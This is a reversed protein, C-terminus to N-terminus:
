KLIIILYTSCSLVLSYKGICGGFKRVTYGKKCMCPSIIEWVGKSSCLGFGQTGDASVANDSCNSNVRRQKIAPAVTRPLNMLSRTNKECVFYDMRIDRIVTCSGSSLFVISFISAKPEFHFEHFKETSDRKNDLITLLPLNKLNELLYSSKYLIYVKIDQNKCNDCSVRYM